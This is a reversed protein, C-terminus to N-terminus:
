SCKQAMGDWGLSLSFIRSQLGHQIGRIRSCSPWLCSSQQLALKTLATFELDALILLDQKLVVILSFSFHFFFCFCFCFSLLYTTSSWSWWLTLLVTEEVLPGLSSEWCGCPPEWSDKFGTGPFRIGPRQLWWAHIYHVYVCAPLIGVYM